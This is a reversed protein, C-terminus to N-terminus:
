RKLKELPNPLLKVVVTTAGAKTEQQVLEGGAAKLEAVASEIYANLQGADIKIIKSVYEIVWQKKDSGSYGLSAGILEAAQVAIKVKSLIDKSKEIGWRKKLYLGVWGIGASTLLLLIDLLVKSLTSDM